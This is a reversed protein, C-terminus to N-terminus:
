ERVEEIVEKINEMFEQTENGGFFTSFMVEAMEVMNEAIISVEKIEEQLEDADEIIKEKAIEPDINNIDYGKNLNNYNVLNQQKQYYFDKMM